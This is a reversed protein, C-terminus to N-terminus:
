VTLGHMHTNSFYPQTNEHALWLDLLPLIRPIPAFASGALRLAVLSKLHSSLSEFNHKDKFNCSRVEMKLGKSTLELVRLVRKGRGRM